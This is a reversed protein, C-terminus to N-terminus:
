ISKIPDFFTLKDLQSQSLNQSIMKFAERAIMIGTIATLDPRATDNAAKVLDKQIAKRQDDSVTVERNVTVMFNDATMKVWKSYQQPTISRTTQNIQSFANHGMLMCICLSSLFILNKLIKKM